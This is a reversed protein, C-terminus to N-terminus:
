PALPTFEALRVYGTESGIMRATVVSNELETRKLSVALTEATLRNGRELLIRVKSGKHGVLQVEVAEASLGEVTSDNVRLVRDGPEVGAKGAPGKAVVSIVTVAQGAKDLQLGPGGLEGRGWQSLLEFERRTMYHSHPDLSSLLGRISAQLLSGFDVSDVYNMRVHSLVGTFAQV